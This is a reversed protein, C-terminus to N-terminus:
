PKGALTAEARLDDVMKNPEDANFIATGAVFVDAGADACEGIMDM